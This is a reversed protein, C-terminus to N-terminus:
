VIAPAPRFYARHVDGILLFRKLSSVRSLAVYGFGPLSMRECCLTVHPLTQGLSKSITLAHGRTVPFAADGNDDTWMPLMAPSGGELKVTLMGHEYTIAYCVKGNVIGEPKNINVTIILRQGRYIPTGRHPCEAIYLSGKNSSNIEVSVKSM